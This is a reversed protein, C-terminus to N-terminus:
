SLYFTNRIILYFLLLLVVLHERGWTFTHMVHIFISQSEVNIVGDVIAASPLLADNSVDGQNVNNLVTNNVQSMM